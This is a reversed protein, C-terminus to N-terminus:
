SLVAPMTRTSSGDRSGPSPSPAAGPAAQGYVWRVRTLYEGAGLGPPPATLTTNTSTNPSSGWLTFVGPATNKEYLVRAGEGPALESFGTYTGTTVSLVSMEIPVNFTMTVVDLPVNGSNAVRADYRFSENIAPSGPTASLSTSIAPAFCAVTVRVIASDGGNLTYTFTDPTTGCFGPEPQYTLASGGGTILVTGNDPQTVTDITMPGADADGDNALVDITTAESEQVVDKSDDVATPPDDVCTVTVSVNATSGRPWRTTSRTRPRASCFNPDPEYTLETGGGTILVTGSDPPTVSDIAMPGADADADNALVDIATAGSDEGVTAMDDAATPPDDVCTVTVSVTASDGGPTLTYTFTDPTASCFTPSPEYTLRTGGGTIVVAGNAPQTVTDIAKAGGDVDTDNGLVDVSTAGSNEAVTLADDVAEPADDVCSVNVTVRGTDTGGRGDAVTYDFGASAPACLNGTPRFRIEAGVISVTGGTPSAVAIVTLPDGADTDNGAPGAGATSLTLAIDEVTAYADDVAVPAANCGSVVDTPDAHVVDTTDGGCRVTDRFRPADRSDLTDSGANGRLLDDGHGGAVRDAGQGGRLVDDGRQGHVRDDGPGGRMRDDGRGGLLVDDGGRGILQDDGGRGCIM